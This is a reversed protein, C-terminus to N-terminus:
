LRIDRGVALLHNISQKAAMEANPYQRIEMSLFGDYNRDIESVIERWALDGTGPIKRETDSIHFFGIIDWAAKLSGLVSDESPQDTSRPQM